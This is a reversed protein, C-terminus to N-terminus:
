QLQKKIEEMSEKLVNKVENFTTAPHNNWDMMRHHEVRDIGHKEITFRVIQMAPRRHIYEGTVDISAKFLACFLSFKGKAMDDECERDDKQSWKTEDPFLSIARQIIKLDTSDFVLYRNEKNGQGCTLQPINVILLFVIIVKMNM